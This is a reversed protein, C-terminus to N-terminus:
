LRLSFWSLASNREFLPSEQLPTLLVELYPNRARSICKGTGDGLRFSFHEPDSHPAPEPRARLRNYRPCARILRLDSGTILIRSTGSKVEFWCLLHMQKRRVDEYDNAGNAVCSSQCRGINEMEQSASRGDQRIAEWALFLIVGCGGARCAVGLGKMEVDCVLMGRPHMIICAMLEFRELLHIEIPLYKTLKADEDGRSWRFDVRTCSRQPHSFKSLLQPGSTRFPFQNKNKKTYIKQPSRNSGPSGEAWHATGASRNQSAMNHVRSLSLFSKCWANVFLM